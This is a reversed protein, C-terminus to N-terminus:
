RRFSRRPRENARKKREIGDPGALTWGAKTLEVIKGTVAEPPLVAKPMSMPRGGGCPTIIVSEGEFRDIVAKM